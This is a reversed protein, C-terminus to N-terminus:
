SCPPVDESPGDRESSGAPESTETTYTWAKATPGIACAKDVQLCINGYCTSATTDRHYQHIRHDNEWDSNPVGAVDWPSHSDNYYALYADQPHDSLGYMADMDSSSGSGYLGAYWGKGQLEEDWGTVFAEASSLCSGGTGGWGELDFYIISDTFGLSEADSIALDADNAGQSKATVSDTSFTAFGLSPPQCPDQLGVYLPIFSWNM